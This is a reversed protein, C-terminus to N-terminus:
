PKTGGGNNPVDHKRRALQGSLFADPGAHEWASLWVDGLLQASKVLQAELFPRGQAGTEGEGSLKGDKELQYLPEVLKNQELIFAMAVAFMEPPKAEHDGLTVRHAPRLKGELGKRDPGGIKDFFGSDIWSHFRSATTFHQPNEGVWGHHHITSHLPQSADGIYHGMTGMIYIINAQANAIEEPTGAQQFTKLYSCCSKLKAYNEAIAWPLLGVLERTHDENRPSNVEPFKDPHAKLYVALQGTFQHRLVPLTEPKLEYDALQEIDIYHDPGSSHKLPLDQVNRWRDPEGALFGIRDTAEATHVFAPFNTPLSTLALQNILRHIEYDWAMAVNQGLQVSLCLGLIRLKGSQM